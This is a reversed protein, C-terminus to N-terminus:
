QFFWFFGEEKKTKLFGCCCVDENDHNKDTAVSEEVMAKANRKKEFRSPTIPSSTSSLLRMDAIVDHSSAPDTVLVVVRRQQHDVALILLFSPRLTTLDSNRSM